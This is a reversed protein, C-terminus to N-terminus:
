NVTLLSMRCWTIHRVHASGNGKNKVATEKKKADCFSNKALDTINMAFCDLSIYIRIQTSRIEMTEFENSFIGETWKKRGCLFTQRCCHSCCSDYIRMRFDEDMSVLSSDPTMTYTRM